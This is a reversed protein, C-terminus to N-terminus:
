HGTPFRVLMAVGPDRAEATIRGGHAQVLQRVM